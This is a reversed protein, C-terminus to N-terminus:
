IKLYKKRADPDLDNIVQSQLELPFLDLVYKAEEPTFEYLLSSIDAPKVDELTNRIFVDDREDLAQQFRDRFEKSLEFEVLKQEM